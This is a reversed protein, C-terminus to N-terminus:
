HVIITMSSNRKNSSALRKREGEAVFEVPERFEGQRGWINLANTSIKKKIVIRQFMLFSTM